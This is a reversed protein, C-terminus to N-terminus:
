FWRMVLYVSFAVLFFLATAVDVVMLAMSTTLLLVIKLSFIALIVMM